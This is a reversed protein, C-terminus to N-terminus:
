FLELLLSSPRVFRSAQHHFFRGDIYITFGHEDAIVQYMGVPCRELYPDILFMSILKM